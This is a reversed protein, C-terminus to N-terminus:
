YWGGKRRRIERKRKTELIYVMEKQQEDWRQDHTPNMDISKLVASEVRELRNIVASQDFTKSVTPEMQGYSLYSTDAFQTFYGSKVANDFDTATWGRMNYEGTQDHTIVHEKGHLLAPVVDWEGGDGTYGGDHGVFIGNTLAPIALRLQGLQRLTEQINGTQALVNAGALFLERQAQRRIEQERREEAERRQEDLATLSGKAFKSSNEFAERLQDERRNIAAIENDLQQIRKESISNLIDTTFQAASVFDNLLSQRLQAEEEIKEKTREFRKDRAEELEEESKNINELQVERSLRAETLERNLNDLRKKSEEKEAETSDENISKLEKDIDESIQNIKSTLENFLNLEKDLISQVVGERKAIRDDAENNIKNQEQEFKELSRINGSNFDERLKALKEQRETEIRERGISSKELERQLEVIESTANRDERIVELLRNQANESLGLLRLRETLQESNLAQLDNILTLGKGTGQLLLNFKEQPLLQTKALPTGKQISKDIRRQENELQEFLKIQASFSNKIEKETESLIQQRIEASLNENAIIRENVTKINDANDILVDLDLEFQDQLIQSRREGLEIRTQLINAELTAAEAEAQTLRERAAINLAENDQSLRFQERALKLRQNVIDREIAFARKAAESADDLSENRELLNKTNLDSLALNREFILQQELLQNNLGSVTKGTSDINDNLAKQFVRSANAIELQLTFTKTFTPIADQLAKRFDNAAKANQMFGNASALDTLPGILTSLSSTLAADLAETAAGFQDTAEENSQIGRRLAGGGAFVATVALGLKQLRALQRALRETAKTSEEAGKSYDGVQRRFNGFQQEAETITTFLEEFEERQAKVSEKNLRGEVAANTLERQLENLRKRQKDLTNTLGKNEKAQEKAAKSSQQRQIKLEEIEVALEETSETQEKQLRLLTKEQRTLEETTKKRKKNADSLNETQNVLKKLLENLADIDKSKSFDLNKAIDEAAKGIQESQKVIGKFTEEIAKGLKNIEKLADAIQKNEIPNAM